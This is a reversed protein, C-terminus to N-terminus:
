LLGVLEHFVNRCRFGVWSNRMDDSISQIGLAIGQKWRNSKVNSWLTMIQHSRSVHLLPYRTDRKGDSTEYRASAGTGRLIRQHLTRTNHNMGLYLRTRRTCGETYACRPFCVGMSM